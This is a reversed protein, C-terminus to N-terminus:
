ESGPAIELGAGEFRRFDALDATALAAGARIAMAAIVCDLLSSRRRGTLNFLRAAEEADAFTMAIPERVIRRAAHREPEPVPECSFRGWAVVSIEVEVGERLWRELQSYEPRGPRLAQILFSADLHIKM